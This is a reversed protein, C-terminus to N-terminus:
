LIKKESLNSWNKVCYFAKSLVFKPPQKYNQYTQLHCSKTFFHKNGRSAYMTEHGVQDFFRPGVRTCAGACLIQWDNFSPALELVVNQFVAISFCFSSRDTHVKLFCVNKM